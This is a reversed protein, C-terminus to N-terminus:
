EVGDSASALALRRAHLETMIGAHADRNLRYSNIFWLGPLALLLALPGWALGLNVLVDPPVDAASRVGDGTPWSLIDLAAGGILSGLAASSKNTLSFAGFFIGENRQNSSLEHQDAIDALMTGMGVLLYAIGLAGVAGFACVALLLGVSGLPPLAGMLYLPVSSGHAGLWLAAGLMVGVKKDFRNFFWKSTAYGVLSGLPGALLVILIEIPELAWFFTLMYLSLAGAAGFAVIIIAFGIILARFSPNKIALLTDAVVARLTFRQSEAAKPLYPIRSKTGLASYWVSLVMAVALWGIFGGYAAPNLQGNPYEPTPVFYVLFGLLFVGIFSLAGFSHRWAVLETRENFDESLEAGLASHPVHYLTMAGRCCVTMTLLWWFLPWEGSVMPNFLLFFFFGLPVAAVYMFPHRRGHKSRWSDSLNGLLPDTVADFMLSIALALGSLTGSLGLVQNYFFLLFTLFVAAQIGEAIQGVGFAVKISRALPPPKTSGASSREAAELESAM